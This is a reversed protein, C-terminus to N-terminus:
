ARGKRQEASSKSIWMEVLKRLKVAPNYAMENVKGSDCVFRIGDITLSTEAINTSIICKRVGEPAYDFVKDQQELSLNSHIPLVIWNKTTETYKVCADVVLNIEKVGNLFILLDGGEKSPYKQDIMQLVKVYPIPDFKIREKMIIDKKVFDPIYELIIPHLRGPVQTSKGCGTDGAIIIVPHTKLLYLIQDKFHAIPLDNQFKKIKKLKNFNQKQLFNIFLCYATKFNNIDESSVHFKLSMISTQKSIEKTEPQHLKFPLTNLMNKTKIESKNSNNKRIKNIFKTSFTKFQRSEENNLADSRSLVLTKLINFRESDWFEADYAM